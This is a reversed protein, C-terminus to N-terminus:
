GESLEISCVFVFARELENVRVAFFLHVHNFRLTERERFGLVAKAFFEGVEIYIWELIEISVSSLILCSEIGGLLAKFLDPLINGITVFVGKCPKLNLILINCRNDRDELSGALSDVVGYKVVKCGVPFFILIDLSGLVDNIGIFKVKVKIVVCEGDIAISVAM